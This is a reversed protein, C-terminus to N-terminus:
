APVHPYLHVAMFYVVVGSIGVYVWLPWTWRALRKHKDFQGKLARYLTLPVLPTIAIAGIVHAALISFYVPRIWGEGGFKAFGSNMKYIVYFVLFLASVSVAALMCARHKTREGRRIFIFGAVLCIVSLGNLSAIIHTFDQIEIM